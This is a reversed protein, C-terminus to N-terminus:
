RCRWLWLFGCNGGYLWLRLWVALRLWLRTEADFVSVVSNIHVAVVVLEWRLLRQAQEEGAVFGDQQPLASGGLSAMQKM